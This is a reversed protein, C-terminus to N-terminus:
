EAWHTKVCSDFISLTRFMVIHRLGSAPKSFGNEQSYYDEEEEVVEARV